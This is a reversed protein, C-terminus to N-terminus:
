RRRRTRIGRWTASVLLMALLAALAATLGPLRLVGALLAAGLLLVPLFPRLPRAHM